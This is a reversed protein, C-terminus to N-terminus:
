LEVPQALSRGGAGYREGNIALGNTSNLDKIRVSPPDILIVAHLRSVMPDSEICYTCTRSRGVSIEAPEAYSFSEPLRDPRHVTLRVM